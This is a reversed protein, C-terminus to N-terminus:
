NFYAFHQKEYFQMGIAITILICGLIGFSQWLIIKSSPFCFVILTLQPSMINTIAVKKLRLVDKKGFKLTGEVFSYEVWMHPSDGREDLNHREECKGECDDDSVEIPNLETNSPTHTHTHSSSFYSLISCSSYSTRISTSLDPCGYRIHYPTGSGTGVVAEEIQRTRRRM